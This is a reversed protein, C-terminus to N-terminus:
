PAIAERVPAKATSAGTIDAVFLEQTPSNPSAISRSPSTTPTTAAVTRSSASCFSRVM